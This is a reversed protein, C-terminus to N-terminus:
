FIKTAHKAINSSAMEIMSQFKPPQYNLSIKVPKIKDAWKLWLVVVYELIYYLKILIM